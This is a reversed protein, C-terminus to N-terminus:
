QKIPARFLVYFIKNNNDLYRSVIEMNKVIVSYDDNQIEQGEIDDVKQISKISVGIQKAIGFRGQKEAMLWSSLEYFYFQSCGIDYYYNEDTPFKELWVPKENSFAIRNLINKNCDSKQSVLVAVFDKCIMSDLIKFNNHINIAKITDFEEKFRTSLFYKGAETNWFAQGGSIKSEKYRIYNMVAEKKANSFASDVYYGLRAIGVACDECQIEGQNVFWYPYVQGGIPRFSFLLIVLILAFKNLM